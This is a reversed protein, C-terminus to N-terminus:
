QRYLLEQSITPRGAGGRIKREERGKEERQKQQLARLRSKEHTSLNPPLGLQEAMVKQGFHQIVYRLNSKGAQQLEKLTPMSRGQGTASAKEEIYENLAAAATELTWQVNDHKPEVKM